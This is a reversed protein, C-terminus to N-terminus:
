KKKVDGGENDKESNRLMWRKTEAANAETLMDVLEITDISKCFESFDMNFNENDLLCAYHMVMAMRRESRLEEPVKGSFEEYNLLAGIDLRYVYEVGGIIVSRAM